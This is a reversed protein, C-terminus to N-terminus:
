LVRQAGQQLLVNLFDVMAKYGPPNVNITRGGEASLTVQKGPPLFRAPLVAAVACAQGDALRQVHLFLPSSRRGKTSGEMLDAAVKRQGARFFYNHPLGFIARQPATPPTFAPNTLFDFMLDHDDKPIGSTKPKDPFVEYYSRNKQLLSNLRGLIQMGDNMPNGVLVLSKTSFCSYAAAGTGKAITNLFAKLDDRFTKVDAPQFNLPLPCSVSTVAFAGFGRRSRAGLGGLMALAYFARIVKEKAAETLRPSFTVTVAFISGPKLYQRTTLFNRSQKDYNILGYGLYSYAQLDPSRAQGVIPRVPTVALKVPSRAGMAGFVEQEGTFDNPYIARYWFRLLGKLSAARLEPPGGQNAGAMFLPTVVELQIALKEM